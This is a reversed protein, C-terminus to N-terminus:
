GTAITVTDGEQSVDLKSVPRRPSDVLIKAEPEAKPDRIIGGSDDRFLRFINDGYFDFTMRQNEGLLVEVAAPNIKRVDEVMQIRQGEKPAAPAASAFNCLVASLGFALLATKKLIGNDMSNGMMMDNEIM